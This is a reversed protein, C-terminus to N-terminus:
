KFILIQNNEVKYNLRRTDKLLELVQIISLGSKVRCTFTESNLKEDTIVIETDFKRNLSKVIESLRTEVFSLEGSVWSEILEGDIDRSRQIGSTLSYDIQENPNLTIKNEGDTSIVEVKGEKLFVTTTEDKYAKMNFKTGLVKVNIDKSKVIFPVEKNHAIEFYAEGELTVTREDDSFSSPYTLKTDANLWVTSGDCLNVRARQGKPVEISQIASSPESSFFQSINFIFSIFVAAAAIYKVYHPLKYKKPKVQPTNEITSKELNEVFQNYADKIVEKDSYKLEYKLVWIREMEFLWDANKKDLKIWEEIYVLDESTSKKSLYRLLIDENM